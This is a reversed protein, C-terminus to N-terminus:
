HVQKNYKDLARWTKPGVIGDRALHHKHQFSLVFAWIVPVMGFVAIMFVGPTIMAWGTLGDSRRRGRRRGTAPKDPVRRPLLTATM